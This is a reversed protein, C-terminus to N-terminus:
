LKDLAKLYRAALDLNCPRRNLELDCLYSATVGMAAGLGRLSVRMRMRQIRLAKGEIFALTGSGGCRPCPEQRLPSQFSEASLALLTPELRSKKPNTARARAIAARYSEPHNRRWRADKIRKRERREAALTERNAELYAAREASRAEQKRRYRTAASAKLHERNRDAWARYKVRISERNAERWRTARVRQRRLREEQGIQLKSM